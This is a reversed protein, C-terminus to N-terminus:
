VSSKYHLKWESYMNNSHLVHDKETKCINVGYISFLKKGSFNWLVCARKIM